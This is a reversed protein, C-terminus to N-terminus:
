QILETHFMFILVPLQIQAKSGFCLKSFISRKNSIIERVFWCLISTWKCQKYALKCNWYICNWNDNIYFISVQWVRTALAERLGERFVPHEPEQFLFKM